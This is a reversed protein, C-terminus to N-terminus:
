SINDVSIREESVSGVMTVPAFESGSEFGFYEVCVAITLFNLTFIITMDYFTIKLAFQGISLEIWLKATKKM